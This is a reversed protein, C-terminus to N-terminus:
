EGAWTVVIGDDDDETETEIAADIVPASSAASEEPLPPTSAAAWEFRIVAPRDEDGALVLTPRGWGRDLLAVAAAVKHKPDRLCGVLTEIADVTYTRALEQV